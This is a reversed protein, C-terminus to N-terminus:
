DMGGGRPPAPEAPSGDEEKADKDKPLRGKKVPLPRLTGLRKRPPNQVSSEVEKADGGVSGPLQWSEVVVGVQAHVGKPPEQEVSGKGEDALSTEPGASSWAAHNITDKQTFEVVTTAERLTPGKDKPSPLGEEIDAVKSSTNGLVGSTAGSLAAQSPSRSLGPADEPAKGYQVLFVGFMAVVIGFVFLGTQLPDAMCSFEKYVFAASAVSTTTFLAYYTPVVQSNGFIIMASNIYAMSFVATGVLVVLLIYPWPSLWDKEFGSVFAESLLSSFAKASVITLSAIVSCTLVFIVVHKHGYKRATPVMIITGVAVICRPPQLQILTVSRPDALPEYGTRIVVFVAKM